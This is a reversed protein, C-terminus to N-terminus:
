STKLTVTGAPVMTEASHPSYKMRTEFYKFNYFIITKLSGPYSSELLLANEQWTAEPSESPTDM